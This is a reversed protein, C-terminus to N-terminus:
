ELTHKQIFQIIEAETEFTDYDGTLGGRIHYSVGAKENAELCELLKQEGYNKVFMSFARIRKNDLM